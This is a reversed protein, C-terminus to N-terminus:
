EAESELKDVIAGLKDILENLLRLTDPDIMPAFVPSPSPPPMGADCSPCVGPCWLFQRFLQLWM